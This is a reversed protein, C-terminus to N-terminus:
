IDGAWPNGGVRMDGWRMSATHLAGCSNKSVRGAFKDTLNSGALRQSRNFFSGRVGRTSRTVRLSRNM